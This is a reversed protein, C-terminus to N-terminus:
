ILRARCGQWVGYGYGNGMGMRRSFARRTDLGDTMKMMLDNYLLLLFAFTCGQKCKRDLSYACGLYLEVPLYINTM